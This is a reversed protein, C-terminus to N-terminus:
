SEDEKSDSSKVESEESVSGADSDDSKAETRFKELAVGSRM